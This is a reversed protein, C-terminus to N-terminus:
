PKIDCFVKSKNNSRYCIINKYISISNLRNGDKKMLRVKCGKDGYCEESLDIMFLQGLYKAVYPNKIESYVKINKEVPSFAFANKAPHCTIKGILSKKCSLEQEYKYSKLEGDKIKWVLPKTTAKNLNSKLLFMYCNDVKAYVLDKESIEQKQEKAFTEIFNQKEKKNVKQEDSKLSKFIMEPYDKINSKLYEFNKYWGTNFVFVICLLAVLYSIVNAVISIKRAEKRNEVIKKIIFSMFLYSLFCIIPLLILALVLGGNSNILPLFLLFRWLRFIINDGIIPIDLFSFPIFLTIGALLAWFLFVIPIMVYTVLANLYFLWLGFKPININKLYYRFVLLQVLVMPIFYVKSLDYIALWSFGVDGALAFRPIFILATLISIFKM